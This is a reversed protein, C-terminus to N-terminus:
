LPPRPDPAPDTLLGVPQYVFDDFVRLRRRVVRPFDRDIKLMLILTEM